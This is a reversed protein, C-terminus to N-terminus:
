QPQKINPIIVTNTLMHAMKRKPMSLVQQQEGTSKTNLHQPQFFQMVLSLDSGQSLGIQQTTIDATNDNKNNVVIQAETKVIDTIEPTEMNEINNLTVGALTCERDDSEVREMLINNVSKNPTTTQNEDFKDHTKRLINLRCIRQDTDIVDLSTEFEKKAIGRLGKGGSRRCQATNPYVELYSYCMRMHERDAKNIKQPDNSELWNIYNNYIDKFYVFNGPKNYYNKKVYNKFIEM